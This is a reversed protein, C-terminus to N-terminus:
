QDKLLKIAEQLSGQFLFLGEHTIRWDVEDRDWHGVVPEITHVQPHLIGTEIVIKDEGEKLYVTHYPLAKEIETEADELLLEFDATKSM